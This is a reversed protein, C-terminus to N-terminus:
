INTFNDATIQNAMVGDLIALLRENNTTDRILTATGANNDSISLDSFGIQAPLGILDIFRNFGRITDTGSVLDLVLTDAGQGGNLTDNGAGGTMTDNGVEGYLTDNGTGGDLLDDGDRAALRDNGEGGMLSDNKAGGLGAGGILTVNMATVDDATLINDGAGGTLEVLEVQTITDSGNGVLTIDTLTFDVYLAIAEQAM